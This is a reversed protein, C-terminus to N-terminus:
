RRMPAAQVAITEKRTRRAAVVGVWAVGVILLAASSPEPVPAEVLTSRTYSFGGGTQQAVAWPDQMQDRVVDIEVTHEPAHSRM